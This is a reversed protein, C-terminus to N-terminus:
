SPSPSMSEMPLSEVPAVPSAGDVGPSTGGDSDAPGCAALAAALALIALIRKMM